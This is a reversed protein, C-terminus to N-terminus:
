RGGITNVDEVLGQESRSSEVSLDQDIERGQELPFGDKLDVQLLDQQLLGHISVWRLQSGECRCLPLPVNHM